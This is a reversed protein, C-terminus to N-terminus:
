FTAAWANIKRRAPAEVYRYSLQACKLVVAFYLLTVVALVTVDAVGCTGSSATKAHAYGVACSSGYAKMAAKQALAWWHNLIEIVPQHVLYIGYSWRGLAQLPMSRLVRSVAGNQRAFIWLPLAFAMPAAVVLPANGVAGLFVVIIGAAIMEAATSFRGAAKPARAFQRYVLYGTFFGAICRLAGNLFATGPMWVLVTWQLAVAILAVALAVAEARGKTRWALLAFLGYTWFEVSISWSPFDWSGGNPDFGQLMFINTFITYPKYASESFPIAHASNTLWIVLASEIKCLLLIGLIALHLPWLRGVRRLMFRVIGAHGTFGKRTSHAIVFGSLLFFFDVCLGSNFQPAGPFYLIGPFHMYAVGLALLGRIGDLAAFDHQENSNSM